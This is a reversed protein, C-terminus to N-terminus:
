LAVMTPADGSRRAQEDTDNADEIAADFNALWKAKNETDDEADAVEVLFAWLYISPYDTLVQNSDADGVLPEPPSYYVFEIDAANGCEIQRADITYGYFSSYARKMEEFAARPYYRLTSYGGARAQKVYRYGRFGAPLPAKYDTLASVTVDSEMAILRANKALRERVLSELGAYFAGLDTRHSYFEILGKLDSYNM